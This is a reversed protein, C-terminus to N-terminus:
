SNTQRKSYEDEFVAGRLSLSPTIPQADARMQLNDM